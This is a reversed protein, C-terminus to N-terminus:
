QRLAEQLERIQEELMQDREVAEDYSYIGDAWEDMLDIREQIKEELEIELVARRASLDKMEYRKIEGVSFPKFWKKM